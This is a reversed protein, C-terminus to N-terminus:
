RYLLAAPTNYKQPIPISKDVNYSRLFSICKENGGVRMMQIKLIIYQSNYYKFLYTFTTHCYCQCFM